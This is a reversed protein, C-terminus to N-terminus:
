FIKREIVTCDPITALLGEVLEVLNVGRVSPAFQVISVVLSGKLDEDKFRGESPSHELTVYAFDLLEGRVYERYEGQRESWKGGPFALTLLATIDADSVDCTCRFAAIDKHRFRAKATNPVNMHGGIFPLFWTEALFDLTLVIFDV